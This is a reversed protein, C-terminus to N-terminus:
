RYFIAFKSANKQTMEDLMFRKNRFLEICSHIKINWFRYFLMRNTQTPFRIKYKNFFSQKVENKLNNEHLAKSLARKKFIVNQMSNDFSDFYFTM